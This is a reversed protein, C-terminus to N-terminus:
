SAALKQKQIEEVNDEHCCKSDGQGQLRGGDAPHSRRSPPPTLTPACLFLHFFADWHREDCPAVQAAFILAQVPGPKRVRGPVRSM